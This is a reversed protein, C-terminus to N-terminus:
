AYIKALIFLFHSILGVVNFYKGKADPLLIPNVNIQWTYPINLTLGFCSENGFYLDIDFVTLFIAM